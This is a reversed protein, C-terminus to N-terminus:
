EPLPESPAHPRTKALELDFGLQEAAEILRAVAADATLPDSASHRVRLDTWYRGRPTRANRIRPPRTRRPPQTM